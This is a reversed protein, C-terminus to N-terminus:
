LFRTAMRRTAVPDGVGVDGVVSKDLGVVIEGTAPMNPVTSMIIGEFIEREIQV